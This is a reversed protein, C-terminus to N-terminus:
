NRAHIYMTSLHTNMGAGVAESHAFALKPTNQTANSTTGRLTKLASAANLLGLVVPISLCILYLFVNDTQRDTQRGSAALSAEVV